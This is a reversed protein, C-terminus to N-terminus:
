RAEWGRGLGRGWKIKPKARLESMERLERANQARPQPKAKLEARRLM